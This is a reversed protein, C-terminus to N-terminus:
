VFRLYGVSWGWLVVLGDNFLNQILRLSGKAVGQIFTLGGMLLLHFYVVYVKSLKYVLGLVKFSVWFVGKSWGPFVKLM